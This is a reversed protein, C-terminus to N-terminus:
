YSNHFTGTYAFVATNKRTSYESSNRLIQFKCAFFGNNFNSVIGSDALKYGYMPTRHIATFGSYSAIAKNHRVTMNGVIANYTIITNHTVAGLHCPMYRHPVPGNNCSHTGYLLKGANTLM